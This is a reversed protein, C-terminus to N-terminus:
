TLDLVHRSYNDSYDTFRVWSPTFKLMCDNVANPGRDERGYKEDFLGLMDRSETSGAGSLSGRMQVTYPTSEEAGIVVACPISDQSKLLTAKVSSRATMFYLELPESVLCYQMAAAHLSGNEDIPVAM